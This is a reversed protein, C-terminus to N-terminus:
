PGLYLLIYIKRRGNQFNLIAAMRVDGYIYDVIKPNRM